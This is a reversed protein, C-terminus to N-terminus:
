ADASRRGPNHCRAGARGRAASRRDRRDDSLSRRVRDGPGRWGVGRDRRHKIARVVDHGVVRRHLLTGELGPLTRPEPRIRDARLEQLVAPLGKGGPEHATTRAPAIDDRRAPRGLRGKDFPRDVAIHQGPQRRRM